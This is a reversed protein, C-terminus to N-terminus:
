SPGAVRVKIESSVGGLDYCKLSYEGQEDPATFNASRTKGEPVVVEEFHAGGDGELEYIHGTENSTTLTLKEGAAATIEAPTRGEDTEQDQNRSFRRRRRWM